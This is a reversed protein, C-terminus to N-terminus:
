FACLNKLRMTVIDFDKETYKFTTMVDRIDKKVKETIEQEDYKIQVLIRNYVTGCGYLGEIGLLQNQLKIDIKSRSFKNRLDKGSDTRSESLLGEVEFILKDLVDISKDGGHERRSRVDNLLKLMREIIKVTFVELQHQLCQPLNTKDIKEIDRCGEDESESTVRKKTGRPTKMDNIELKRKKEDTIIMEPPQETNAPNDNIDDSSHPMETEHIDSEYSTSPTPENTLQPPQGISSRPESINLKSCRDSLPPSQKNKSPSSLTHRVPKSPKKSPSNPRKRPSGEKRSSLAVDSSPPTTGHAALLHGSDDYEQSGTKSTHEPSVPSSRVSHLSPSKDQQERHITVFQRKDELSLMWEEKRLLTQENVFVVFIGHQLFKTTKVDALKHVHQSDTLILLAESELSGTLFYQNKNEETTKNHDRNIVLCDTSLSQCHEINTYMVNVDVTECKILNEIAKLEEDDSRLRKVSPSTFVYDLIRRMRPLIDRIRIRFFYLRPFCKENFKLSKVVFKTRSAM